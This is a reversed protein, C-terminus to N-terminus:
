WAPWKTTGRLSARIMGCAFRRASPPRLGKLFKKAFTQNVIAVKPSNPTDDDNFDRRGSPMAASSSLITWRATTVMRLAM